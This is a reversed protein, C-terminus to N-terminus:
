IILYTITLFCNSYPFDYLVEPDRDEAQVTFIRNNLAQNENVTVEYPQNGVFAPVFKNRTVEVRVRAEGSNKAPVGGDVARVLIQSYCCYFSLSWTQVHLHDHIYYKRM